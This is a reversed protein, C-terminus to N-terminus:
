THDRLTNKTRKPRCPPAQKQDTKDAAISRLKRLGEERAAAGSAATPLRDYQGETAWRYEITVNRGVVYGTGSLGSHFAAVFRHLQQPVRDGADRGAAAGARRAAV